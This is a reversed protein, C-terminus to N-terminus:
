RPVSVAALAYAARFLTHVQLLRILETISISCRARRAKSCSRRIRVSPVTHSYPFMRPMSRWVNGMSQTNQLSRTSIPQGGYYGTILRNKLEGAARAKQAFLDPHILDYIRLGSREAKDMYCPGIGKKTTGIEGKGRMKESLGDIELHWPM